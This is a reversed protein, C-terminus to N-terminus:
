FGAATVKKLIAQWVDSVGMREAMTEVHARDLQDGQVMVVSAIDRLHQESQGMQFFEMKKLIVHEPCAVWGNRDPVM